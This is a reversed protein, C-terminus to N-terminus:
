KHIGALSTVFTGSVEWGRPKEGWAGWCRGGSGPPSCSGTDQACSRQETM